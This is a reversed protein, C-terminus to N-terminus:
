IAGLPDWAKRDGGLAADIDQETVTASYVKEVRRNDRLSLEELSSLPSLKRSSEITASGVNGWPNKNWSPERRAQPQALTQAGNTTINTNSISPISAVTDTTATTSWPNTESPMRRTARPLKMGPTDRRGVVEGIGTEPAEEKGKAFMEGDVEGTEARIQNMAETSITKLERAAGQIASLAGSGIQSWGWGSGSQQASHGLRNPPTNNGEGLSHAPQMSSVSATSPFPRVAETTSVSLDPTSASISPAPSPARSRSVYPVHLPSAAREVVGEVSIPDVQGAGVPGLM